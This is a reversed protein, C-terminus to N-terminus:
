RAISGDWKYRFAIYDPRVATDDWAWAEGDFKICRAENGFRVWLKYRDKEWCLGGFDSEQKETLPFSAEVGASADIWYGGDDFFNVCSAKRIVISREDSWAQEDENWLSGKNAAFRGDSSFVMSYEFSGNSMRYIDIIGEPMVAYYDKKWGCNEYKMCYTGVDASQIWINYSDKEWCIGWFDWARELVYVAIEADTDAEYITLEICDVEAGEPRVARQVAYYKGDFSYTTEPSFSSYEKPNWNDPPWKGRFDLLSCASLAACLMLAFALMIVKKM